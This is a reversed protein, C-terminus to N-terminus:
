QEVGAAVTSVDVGDHGSEHKCSGSTQNAGAAGTSVSKEAIPLTRKHRRVDLGPGEAPELRANVGPRMPFNHALGHDGSNTPRASGHDLEHSQRRSRSASSTLLGIRPANLRPRKQGGEYGSGSRGTSRAPCQGGPSPGMM